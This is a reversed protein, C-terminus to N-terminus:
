SGSGPDYLEASSYGGGAVLVRGDALVIATHGSRAVIMSATPTWTGSAPDYLEASAVLSRTDIRYGGAVLVAGNPLLTVTHDRRAETMSGTATWSGSRPDYLEAAALTLPDPGAGGTDPQVVQTSSDGGAVLVRGDSLLTAPVYGLRAETMSGTATWSGSRPDYLEASALSGDIGSVGVIGEGGVVLVRGNLLLTATHFERGENMSGTATWSGTLPDYLEASSLHGGSGHGGAVLVKGDPLLTATQYFRGQNMSGTATWTGTGPDYLEASAAAYPAHGVYGGAVLVTGDPLLTATRGEAGPEIMAGTATWTGRSPDYLEVSPQGDLGGAVLVRGDHLLTLTQGEPSSRGVNFAKPMGGWTATWAGGTHASPGPTTSDTPGPIPSPGVNPRGVLVSIGILVAVILAATAIALPAFRNLEGGGAQPMPEGGLRVLWAPRPRTHATATVVSELLDQPQGSPASEELWARLLADFQRESTM